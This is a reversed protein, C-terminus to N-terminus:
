DDEQIKTNEKEGGQHRLALPISDSSFKPIAHSTELNLVLAPLPTTPSTPSSCDPIPM